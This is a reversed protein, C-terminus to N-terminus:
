GNPYRAYYDKLSEDYWQWAEVKGAELCELKFDRRRLLALEENVDAVEHAEASDELESLRQRANDVQELVEALEKEAAEKKSKAEEAHASHEKEERLLKVTSRGLEKEAGKLLGVTTAIAELRVAAAKANEGLKAVPEEEYIATVIRQEGPHEYPIARESPIGGECVAEMAEGEYLPTVIYKHKGNLATVVEDLIVQEGYSNYYCKGITIEM